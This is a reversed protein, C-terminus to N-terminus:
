SNARALIAEACFARPRGGRRPCAGRAKPPRHGLGGRQRLRGGRRRPAGQVPVREPLTRKAGRCRDRICMESGVLSASM